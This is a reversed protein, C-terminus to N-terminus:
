QEEKGCVACEKKGDTDVDNTMDHTHHANCSRCVEGQNWDHNNPQYNPNKFTEGCGVYGTITESGDVVGNNNTDVWVKIACDCVVYEACSGTANSAHTAPRAIAVYGDKAGCDVCVRHANHGDATCTANTWAVDAYVHDLPKIALYTAANNTNVNVTNGNADKATMVNYGDVSIAGCNNSCVYYARRGAATCTAEVGAVYYQAYKDATASTIFNHSKNAGIAVQCLNCKAAASCTAVTAGVNFTAKVAVSQLNAPVESITAYYVGNAVYAAASSAVPYGMADLYWVGPANVDHGVAPTYAQCVTCKYASTDFSNCSNTTAAAVHNRIANLLADRLTAGTVFTAEAGATLVIKHGTKPAKVLEATTKVAYTTVGNATTAVAKTGCGNACLIHANLGDTTCTAATEVVSMGNVFNHGTAYNYVYEVKDCKSCYWSSSTYGDTTCTAPKETMYTKVHDVVTGWETQCVGCYNMNGCAAKKSAANKFEVSVATDTNNVAGDHPLKAITSATQTANCRYCTYAATKGEAKCTAAYGAVFSTKGTAPNVYDHGLAATVAEAYGETVLVKETAANEDADLTVMDAIVAFDSSYGASPVNCVACVKFNKLGKTTCSAAIFEGKANATLSSVVATTDNADAKFYNVMTHGAPIKAEEYGETYVNSAILNVKELESMKNWAVVNDISEAQYAEAFAEACATCIKFDKLGDVTCTAAVSKAGTASDTTVQVNYKGVTWANIANAGTGVTSFAFAIKHAAKSELVESCNTCKVTTVCNETVPTGAVHELKEGRTEGCNACTAPADCTANTFAHATFDKSEGCANACEVKGDGCKADGYNHGLAKVTIHKEVGCKSCGMDKFGDEDCTPAMEDYVVSYDHVCVVPDGGFNINIDTSPVSSDVPAKDESSNKDASNKCASVGAICAIATLGSLIAVLLRKMKKM